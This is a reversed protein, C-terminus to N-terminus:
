SAECLARHMVDRPAPIGLWREFALAGQELLMALGDDARLARARAARVWPTGGRRYVLDIVAADPELAEVPVPLADDSMGISTANVVLACGRVAAAPDSSTRTVVSFRAALADRREASRNQLTVECGPWREVAALVAASAGGAGLLAVRLARPERGLVCTALHEFGGVDTNDGVLAGDDAVWFTNVAGAREAIATRRDCLAAVAEKHPITVNGAAREAVLARICTALEAPPVDLAEYTLPVGASRLAANQFTPSLSHRVPHGLLVLRSPLATM